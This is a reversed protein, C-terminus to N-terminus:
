STRGETVYAEVNSIEAPLTGGSYRARHEDVRKLFEERNSWDPLTRETERFIEREVAECEADVKQQAANDETQMSM